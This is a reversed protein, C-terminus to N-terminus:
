EDEHNIPPASHDSSERRRKEIRALFEEKSIKRATEPVVYTVVEGTFGVGKKFVHAKLVRGQIKRKDKSM